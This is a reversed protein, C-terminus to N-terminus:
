ELGARVVAPRSCFLSLYRKEPDERWKALTTSTKLLFKHLLGETVALM